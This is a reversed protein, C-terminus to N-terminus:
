TASAASVSPRNQNEINVKMQYQEVAKNFEDAGQSISSIAADVAKELDVDSQDFLEIQISAIKQILAIKSNQVDQLKVLVHNMVDVKTKEM